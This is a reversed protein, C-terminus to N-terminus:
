RLAAKERLRAFRPHGRVPTLRPDVTLYGIWPSREEHARELWDMGAEADGLAIHIAAVHYASVHRTRSETTLRALIARAEEKEGARAYAHGLSALYLLSREDISLARKAEAIAEKFRGTQEYSWGLHWHAPAFDPDLELAKRYEAIANENKGAFYYRLGVWTQIILSLPDLRRAIEAQALAEDHRGMASLFGGYWHHGIAYTSDLEIARRYEREAADWDHDFELHIHALSTHAEALTSDFQLARLAAHKAKPFADRPALRSYWGRAIWTDAIGVWARSYGPDLDVAQQFYDLATQINEETRKNWFYRGKLYLTYAEHNGTPKASMRGREGERLTVGLRDVVESAIDSQVDFIDDIVRDYTKSWLQREDEARLLQLTVRVSRSETEAGAWRVSGVLLFNIGLARGIERMTMNTRAYRQAARSPVLGLGSVAGLRSTIEDTMGVAFYEDDPRGLNEFPLVAIMSQQRSPTEVRASNRRTERKDVLLLRWAAAVLAVTLVSILVVVPRSARRKSVIRADSSQREKGARSAPPNSADGESVALAFAGPTDFRDAPLKALARTVASELAPSVTERLTSVRPVPETLKKAIVAQFTSGTFPPEGSLMEYFVCGLAYTDTRGDVDEHAMAQEPSMYEPTGVALGSETIRRGAAAGIATAVGFDAIVAHGGMFLINEPKIDRHVIGLSHAHSLGDAIESVIRIAEAVPLQRERRLRDRLSEGEVFPMAFYVFGDAEGSDYLPLIHPHALVAAIQIERLFRQSGLAAAVEPTLVKVAVRREHRVDEALYITAMGGRGIERTIRYRSALATRFREFREADDRVIQPM